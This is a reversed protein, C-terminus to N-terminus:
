LRVHLKGTKKGTSKNIVAMATFGGSLLNAFRVEAHLKKVPVKKVSKVAFCSLYYFQLIKENRSNEQLYMYM